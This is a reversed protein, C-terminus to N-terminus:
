FRRVSTTMNPGRSNQYCGCCRPSLAAAKVVQKTSRTFCAVFPREALRDLSLTVDKLEGATRLDRKTPRTVKWCTVTTASVSVRAFEQYVGSRSEGKSEVEIGKLYLREEPTCVKWVQRTLGTPVLFDTAERYAHDIVGRVIGESDPRGSRAIEREVNIERISEYSTM